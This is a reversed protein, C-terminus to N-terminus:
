PRSHKQQMREATPLKLYKDIFDFDDYQVENNTKFFWFLSTIDETTILFGM